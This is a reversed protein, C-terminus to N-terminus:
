IPVISVARPEKGAPPSAASRWSAITILLWEFNISAIQVDLRRHWLDRTAQWNTLDIRPKQSVNPSIFVPFGDLHTLTMLTSGDQFEGYATIRATNRIKILALHAAFVKNPDDLAQLLPRIAGDPVAQFQSCIEATGGAKADARATVYNVANGKSPYLKWVIDSNNMRGVMAKAVPTGAAAPPPGLLM